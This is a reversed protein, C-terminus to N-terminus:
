ISKARSIARRGARDAARTRRRARRRPARGRGARRAGAVIRQLAAGARAEADRLPPLDHAAIAQNRAAEAQATTREAVDRAAAELASNPRPWRRSATAIRSAARRAGRAAPHERVFGQIQQGAAGAAEALRDPERGAETRGRSAHSEGGRREPATGGRAPAFAPRRRRRGRGSHAPAGAAERFHDRRDHGAAGDRSVRSGTSADAFLIQVDRARVEKHNIRYTSGEQASSKERSKWFRRTTSPPPRPARDRQRHRAGSGRCQAGPSQRLRLLDRRGHRVRAHEQVFERGDGLAPGRRSEVQRLWQPRRRRDPGARLHIRDARRFEQVRRHAAELFAHRDRGRTGSVGRRFRGRVM